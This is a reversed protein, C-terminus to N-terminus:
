DFLINKCERLAMLTVTHRFAPDYANMKNL